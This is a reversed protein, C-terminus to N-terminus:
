LLKITCSYVTLKGVIFCHKVRLQFCVTIQSGCSEIYTGYQEPVTQFYPWTPGKTLIRIAGPPSFPFMPCLAKGNMNFWLFTACGSQCQLVM